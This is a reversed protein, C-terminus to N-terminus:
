SCSCRSRGGSSLIPEVILAALSGVSQRDVMGWGYELEAEWDYEGDNKRFVSRYADPTPLMLTGPATPGYNKRGAFFTLASAGNTMGHWASALGVVEFKGTYLRAMRLAAENSEAGTSLFMAKDLGPPLLSTLKTAAAVVPPSLMSSFLHDLHQIHETAVQVIEPHGHGLLSSM